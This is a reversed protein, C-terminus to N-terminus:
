RALRRTRRICRQLCNCVVGQFNCVARQTVKGRSGVEQKMEGALQSEAEEVKMGNYECMVGRKSKRRRDM